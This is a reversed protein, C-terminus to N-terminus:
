NYQLTVTDAMSRWSHSWNEWQARGAKKGCGLWDRSPWSYWSPHLPENRYGWYQSASLVLHQAWWMCFLNLLPNCKICRLPITHIELGQIRSTSFGWTHLYSLLVKCSLLAFNPNAEEDLGNECPKTQEGVVRLSPNQIGLQLSHINSWKSGRNPSTDDHFGKSVASIPSPTLYSSSEEGWLQAGDPEWPPNPSSSFSCGPLFWSWVVWGAWWTVSHARLKQKHGKALRIPWVKLLLHAKHYHQKRLWHFDYGINCANPTVYNASSVHAARTQM